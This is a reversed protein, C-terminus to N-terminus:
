FHNDLQALIDPLKAKVFESIITTNIPTHERIFLSNDFEEPKLRMEPDFQLSFYAFKLCILRYLTFFNCSKVLVFMGSTSLNRFLFVAFSYM